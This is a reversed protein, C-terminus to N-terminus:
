CWPFRTDGEHYDPLEGLLPEVSLIKVLGATQNPNSLFSVDPLYGVGPLHVGHGGYVTTRIRTGDPVEVTMRVMRCDDNYRLIM